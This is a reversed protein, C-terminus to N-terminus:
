PGLEDLAAQWVASAGDVWGHAGREFLVVLLMERVQALSLGHARGARLHVRAGGPNNLVAAILVFLLERTAPDLAPEDRGGGYALQRLQWYHDFFGADFEFLARLAPPVSGTTAAFHERAGDPIDAGGTDSM